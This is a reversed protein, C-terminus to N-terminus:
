HTSYVLPYGTVSIQCKKVASDIKFLSTFFTNLKGPTHMHKHAHMHAIRSADPYASLKSCVRGCNMMCFWWSLCVLCGATSHM